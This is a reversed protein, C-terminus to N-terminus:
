SMERKGRKGAKVKPVVPFVMGPLQEQELSSSTRSTRAPKACQPCMAQDQWIKWGHLRARADTVLRDGRGPFDSCAHLGANSCRLNGQEDWPM